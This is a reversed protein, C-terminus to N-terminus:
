AGHVIPLPGSAACLPALPGMGQPEGREQEQIM